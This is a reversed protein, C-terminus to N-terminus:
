TATSFRPAGDALERVARVVDAPDIEGLCPSPRLGTLGCPTADNRWCPICRLTRRADLIRARPYDQGRVRGDTPGFLGVCPLDLAGAVHFFVSDPAVLVDCGGALAFSKRLDLGTVEIVGPGPADTTTVRGFVLVRAERALADVIQRMHPLDRYREDTRPQVGVVFTGALGYDAFFRDRWALETESVTYRPRRDMAKLRSGRIGLGRAFLEIRNTKIDPAAFSEHRAAPCDTLDFWETYAAPDLIADIDKVQVDDNGEFLPFFRPPIALVVPRGTRAAKLARLGPTMMLFDGLGGMARTVLTADLAAGARMSTRAAAARLGYYGVYASVNTCAELIRAVPRWRLRRAAGLCSWHTLWLAKDGVSLERSGLLRLLGRHARRMLHVAAHREGVDTHFARLRAVVLRTFAPARKTELSVTGLLELLAPVAARDAILYPRGYTDTLTAHAADVHGLLVEAHAKRIQIWPWIEPFTKVGLALSLECVGSAEIFRSARLLEGSWDLLTRFLERPFSHRACCESVFLQVVSELFRRERRLAVAAGVPLASLRALSSLAVQRLIDPEAQQAREAPTLAEFLTRVHEAHGRVALHHLTGEDPLDVRPQTRGPTAADLRVLSRLPEIM